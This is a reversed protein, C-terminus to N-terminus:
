VISSSCSGSVNNINRTSEVNFDHLDIEASIQPFLSTLIHVHVHTFNWRSNHSVETGESWAHTLTCHFPLDMDLFRWWSLSFFGTIVFMAPADSPNAVPGLMSMRLQGGCLHEVFSCDTPCDTCPTQQVKQTHTHPQVTSDFSHQKGIGVDINLPLKLALQPKALIGM